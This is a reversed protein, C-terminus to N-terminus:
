GQRRRFMLLGVAGTAIVAFVSPEPVANLQVSVTGGSQTVNFDSPDITGNYEIVGVTVMNQVTSLSTGGNFNIVATSGVTFNVPETPGGGYIGFPNSLNIVGGSLTFIGAGGSNVGTILTTNLTGGSMFITDSNFDFENALSNVMGGEISFTLGPNLTVTEDFNAVGSTITFANGISGGLNFPNSSATGQNFTGGDVLITGGRLQIWNNGNIQTWSGNAIELTGGNGVYFDGGANYTVAQGGNITATAGNATNPVSGLTWNGATQYDNNIAGSFTDARASYAGLALAALIAIETKM